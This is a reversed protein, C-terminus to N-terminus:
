FEYRLAFQMVRPNTALRTYQGFTSGSLDLTANISLPDFRVANLVNFVEWRFKLAQGESWPMTWSKSLAMDLSFFGPGRLNNRQGSQGPFPESFFNQAASGNAFASVRTADSSDHYTGTKVQGIQNGNGSLEWDTAWNYGNLVSFPFGSTWRTLGSTQWGGIFADVVRNVDHGFARGRGFPLQYVWNANIQHTADFDSVARFQYPSWANQIQSSNGGITGVRTADSSLDISKSFTYNFTFQLGHTMKQDLTLQLANYSSTGM